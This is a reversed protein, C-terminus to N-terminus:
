RIPPTRYKEHLILHDTIIFSTIQRVKYCAGRRLKSVTLTDREYQKREFRKSQEQWTGSISKSLPDVRLHLTSDSGVINEWVDDLRARAMETVPWKLM